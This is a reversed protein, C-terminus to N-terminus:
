RGHQALLADPDFDDEVDTLIDGDAIRVFETESMAFEIYFTHNDETMFSVRSAVPQELNADIAISLAKNISLMRPQSQNISTQLERSIKVIFDGLIQNTLEGMVNSVDDSTHSQSLEEEPMGMNVMYKRYIEVAAVGSFNLIVLGSFGGDFVSFCGIEPKLKTQSIRQVMGSHRIQSGSTNSLVETVSRCLTVLIDDSTVVDRNTTM